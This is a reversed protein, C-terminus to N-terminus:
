PLYTVMEELGPNTPIFSIWTQGPVLKAPVGNEMPMLIGDINEWEIEKMIGAQFIYARGGDNLSLQRRGSSDIIKHPIEMCIINAIKVAKDTEKDITLAGATEREYLGEESIYTYENEFTSGAGYHISFNSVPNGIKIGEFSDFFSFRPIKTIEMSAKVKEAGALVKDKSIYSNHPAKRERSREFLIGDYQMGNINDVVRSSLMSQADPSYGHAVYFADLGRAIDVFYDRASRVPGMKEPIESQYVALFRTVNGEALMEYIIDAKAIGSQPRALPHNNITVLIPRQTLEKESGVGTFPATFPLVVEEETEVVEEGVEEITDDVPNVEETGKEKDSCAVLLVSALMLIGWQKFM